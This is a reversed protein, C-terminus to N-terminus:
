NTKDKSIMQLIYMSNFCLRRFASEAFLPLIVAGLVLRDSWECMM